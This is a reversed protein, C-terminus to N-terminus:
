IFHMQIFAFGEYSANVRLFMSQKKTMLSSQVPCGVASGHFGPTFICLDDTGRCVRKNM